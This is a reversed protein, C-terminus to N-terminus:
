SAARVASPSPSASADVGNTILSTQGETAGSSSRAHSLRSSWRTREAIFDDNLELLQETQLRISELTGELTLGSSSSGRTISLRKPRRFTASPSLPPRASASPTTTQAGSTSPRTEDMSRISQSLENRHNETLELRQRDLAAQLAEAHETERESLAQELFQREAAHRESAENLSSQLQKEHSEKLQLLADELAQKETAHQGVLEQLSKRLVDEQGATSESLADEPLAKEANRSESAEVRAVKQLEEYNNKLVAIEDQLQQVILAHKENHAETAQQLQVEHEADRQSLERQAQML